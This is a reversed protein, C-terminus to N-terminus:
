KVAELRMDRQRHHFKVETFRFRSFGVKAVEEGMEDESWCWQHLMAPNRYRPDGFLGWLIMRHSREGQEYMKMIKDLSPVEIVLLGGAKLLSHWYRLADPADWRPLHEFLHIAQIEDVTGAEYPMKRVDAIVDGQDIDVNVFGPWRRPGCGLHLRIPRGM